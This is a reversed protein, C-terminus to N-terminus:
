RPIDAPLSRESTDPSGPAALSVGFVQGFAERARAKVLAMEIDQGLIQALSTVEEDKIGCPVILSFHSMDPSVNLSVGHMTVWRRVQELRRAHAHVDRGYGDLAIIPYLVLQGPGHYTVDGGRNTTHVSIGAAQLEEESALISERRGARGVTICAPHEVVLVTDLVEDAQRLGHLRTQLDYAAEYGTTRLDLWIAEQPPM